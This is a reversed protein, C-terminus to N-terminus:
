PQPPSIKYGQQQLLDRLKIANPNGQNALIATEGAISELQSRLKQAEAITSEQAAHQALLTARSTTLDITMNLTLVCLTLVTLLVPVFLTDLRLNM